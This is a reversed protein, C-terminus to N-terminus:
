QKRRPHEIRYIAKFLLSTLTAAGAVCVARYLLANIFVSLTM